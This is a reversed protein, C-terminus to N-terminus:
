YLNDVYRQRSQLNKVLTVKLSSNTNVLLLGKSM